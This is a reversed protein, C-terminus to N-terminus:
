GARGLFWGAMGQDGNVFSTEVRMLGGAWGVPQAEGYNFGLLCATSVALGLVWTVRGNYQSAKSDGASTPLFIAM